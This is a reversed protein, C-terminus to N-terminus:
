PRAGAANLQEAAHLNDVAESWAAFTVKSAARYARAETDALTRRRRADEARHLDARYENWAATVAADLDTLNHSM